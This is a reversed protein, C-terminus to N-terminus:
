PAWVLELGNSLNFTSATCYAASNRYWVQYTRTGPSAVAGKVSLPQEGAGPCISGGSANTKTGLRVVSGGACRLGDGFGAGAGGNQRLTGQFYLASSNPMGAGALVVTDGSLRAAGTARLTAASGLSNLCGAQAAPTSGNGCPCAVGSGDGFCFVTGPAPLEITVDQPQLDLFAGPGAITFGYVCWAGSSYTGVCQVPDLSAFSQGNCDSYSFSVPQAGALAINSTYMGDVAPHNNRLTWNAAAGTGSVEVAGVKMSISATDIAFTAYQGAPVGPLLVDFRLEVPAGVATGVFAGSSASGGAVTGRVIIRVDGASATSALTSLFVAAALIKM